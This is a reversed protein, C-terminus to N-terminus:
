SAFHEGEEQYHREDLQLEHPWDGFTLFTVRDWLSADTGLSRGNVTMTM